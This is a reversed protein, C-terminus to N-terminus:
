AIAFAESACHQRIFDEHRPLKAIVQGIQERRKRMVESLTELPIRDALPDYAAARLGHGHYISIWSPEHFHDFKRVLVEGRRKYLELKWQLDDPLSM